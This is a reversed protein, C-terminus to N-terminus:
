FGLKALAEPQDFLALEAAKEFREMWESLRTVKQNRVQTTAQAEVQEQHRKRHAEVVESLLSLEQSLRTEDCGFTALVALWDPELLLNHYFTSAQNIWGVQTRAKRQNLLLAQQAKADAQFALQALSRTQDYVEQASSLQEQLRRTAAFQDGYQAHFTQTWRQAEAALSQGEALRDADFGIASLAELILTDELATELAAQAAYIQKELMSNTKM